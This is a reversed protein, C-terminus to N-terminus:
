ERVHPAAQKKRTNRAGLAESAEPAEASPVTHGIGRKAIDSFLVSKSLFPSPIPPVQSLLRRESLEITSKDAQVMEEDPVKSLLLRQFDLDSM